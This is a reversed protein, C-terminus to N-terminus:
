PTTDVTEFDSCGIGEAATTLTTLVGVNGLAPLAFSLPFSVPPSVAPLPISWLPVLFSEGWTFWANWTTPTAAGLDFDMTFTGGTYSLDLRLTCGAGAGYISEAGTIDDPQLM